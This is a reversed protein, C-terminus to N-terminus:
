KINAKEFLNLFYKKNNTNKKLLFNELYFCKDIRSPLKLNEIDNSIKFYKVVENLDDKSVSNCITGKYILRKDEIKPDTKNAIIYLKQIIFNNNVEHFIYYKDFSYSIKSINYDNTWSGTKNDFIKKSNKYLIHGIPVKKLKLSPDYIIYNYKNYYELIKNYKDINKKTLNDNNLSEIIFEIIKIQEDYLYNYIINQELKPTDLDKYIKDLIFDINLNFSNIITTIPIFQEDNNISLNNTFEIPKYKDSFKVLFLYNNHQKIIVEEKQYNYFIINNNILLDSIDNQKEYNFSIKNSLNYILENIAINFDSEDINKTNISIHFPPNKVYELLDNYEFILSVELFLRKIIYKLISITQDIFVNKYTMVNTIKYNEINKPLDFNSNDIYTNIDNNIQYDVANSYLISNIRQIKNYEHLKKKYYFEEFTIKDDQLYSHILIYINVNNEKIQKHSNKRVARGIIQQLSSINVPIHTIFLHQISKLTYGEQLVSSAILIKINEGYKNNTSNYDNLQQEIINKNLNGNINIFQAPKFEHNNSNSSEIDNKHEIRKIGCISCFTNNNSPSGYKVFGNYKLIEDIFLVGSNHVYPHFIMIKGNVNSTDNNNKNNDDINLLNLDSDNPIKKKIINFILKLMNFYKSSINNINDYDLCEGTIVSDSNLSIFKSTSTKYAQKISESNILGISDDKNNPIVCDMIYRNELSLVLKNSDLNNILTNYTNKILKSMKCKIFKFGYSLKNNILFEGHFIKNPYEIPNVINVYCIKGYTKEKIISEGDSTLEHKKFIDSYKVRDKKENLLNVLYVIEQSSHKLPTASLFIVKNNPYYDLIFSIAIAWNNPELVNYLHHIEDCIIFADKFQDLVVKNVKITGNELYEIFTERKLQHISGEYNFLSNFLSQYGYMIYNKRLKKNVKWLNSGNEKFTKREENNLLKFVKKSALEYKFINKTFGLIIVKKEPNLNIYQKATTLATLSKGSGTNFNLLVRNYPTVPNLFNNVFLQYNELIINDEKNILTNIEQDLGLLEKDSNNYNKDLKLLAFEKYHLIESQISPKYDNLSPYINFMTKLKVIYLM